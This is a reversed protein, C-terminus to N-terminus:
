CSYGCHPNVVSRHELSPFAPASGGWFCLWLSCMLSLCAGTVANQGLVDKSPQPALVSWFRQLRHGEASSEMDLEHGSGTWHHGVMGSHDCSVFGLVLLQGYVRVVAAGVVVFGLDWM